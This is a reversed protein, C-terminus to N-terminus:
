QVITAILLILFVFSLAIMASIVVQENRTKGDFENRKQVLYLLLSDYVAAGKTKSNDPLIKTRDSINNETRYTTSFTPDEVISEIDFEIDINTKVDREVISIGERDVGPIMLHTQSKPIEQDRRIKCKTSISKNKHQSERFDFKKILPTTTDKNCNRLEDGQEINGEEEIQKSSLSSSLSGDIETSSNGNSINTLRRPLKKNDLFSEQQMNRIKMKLEKIKQDTTLDSQQKQQLKKKIKHVKSDIRLSMATKLDQATSRDKSPQRESNDEQHLSDWNQQLNLKDAGHGRHASVDSDLSLDDWTSMSELSSVTEQCNLSIFGMMNKDVSSSCSKRNNSVRTTKSKLRMFTLCETGSETPKRSVKRHYRVALDSKSCDVKMCSEDISSISIASIGCLVEANSSKVEFPVSSKCFVEETDETTLFCITSLNEGSTANEIEPFVDVNKLSSKGRNKTAAATTTTKTTVITKMRDSNDNNNIFKKTFNKTRINKTSQLSYSGIKPGNAKTRKDCKKLQFISHQQRLSIENDEDKSYYTSGESSSWSVEERNSIPSWSLTIDLSESPYELDFMRSKKNVDDM